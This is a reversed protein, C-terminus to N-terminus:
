PRSLVVPWPQSPLQPVAPANTFLRAAFQELRASRNESSRLSEQGYPSNDFQM